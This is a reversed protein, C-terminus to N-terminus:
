IINFDKLDLYLKSINDIHYSEAKKLAKESMEKYQERNNSLKKAQRILEYLSDSYIAEDSWENTYAPEPYSITPIGFSGANALKLANM